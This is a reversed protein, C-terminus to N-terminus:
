FPLHQEKLAVRTVRNRESNDIGRMHECCLRTVPEQSFQGYRFLLFFVCSDSFVRIIYM